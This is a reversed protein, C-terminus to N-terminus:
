PTRGDKAKRRRFWAPAERAGLLGGPALRILVILLLAYLIMNYENLPRRLAAPLLTLGTLDIHRMLPPLFGLLFAAGISGSLSGLGGMVVVLLVEISRLLGFCGPNLRLQHHFFLSGALGAFAAGMLFAALKFRRVDIGMASAAIEDERISMLARGIASRKVNLLFAYTLALALCIVWLRAYEASFAAHRPWLEGPFETFAIGTPGGIREGPFMRGGPFETNTLALRTIEGFGLTVIALYDGRLRLCPLGVALALAMAALMGAAAGPLFNLWGWAPVTLYISYLGAAYAGAAYFGAHGLSLMGTMGSVMNLSVALIALIGV